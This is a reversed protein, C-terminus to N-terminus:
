GLFEEEGFVKELLRSLLMPCSVPVFGNIRTPPVGLVVGEVICTEFFGDVPGVVVRSGGVVGGGDIRQVCM